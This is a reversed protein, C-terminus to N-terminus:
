AFPSTHSGAAKIRSEGRHSFFSGEPEAGQSSPGGREGGGGGGGGWEGITWGTGGRGVGGSRKGGFEEEGSCAASATGEGKPSTNSRHPAKKKERAAM